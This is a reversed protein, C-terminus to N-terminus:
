FDTSPNEGYPETPENAEGTAGLSKIYGNIMKGIQTIENMFGEFQEDTILKRSHAKTLWTQTEFLSGRSYYSFNKIEKYHYRGM